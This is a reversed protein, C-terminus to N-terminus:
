SAAGMVHEVYRERPDGGAPVFRALLSDVALWRPPHASLTQAHSSWRWQDPQECLGGAVPNRAIYAIVTWLQEDSRISVSGYRGEFLHGTRGHRRNFDQAYGGHLRQMGRGLNPHPTEILLHVHNDMLCYALCRWRMWTVVRGLTSLYRRRDLDDLYIRRKDNGRAYVHHLAGPVDERLRRAV